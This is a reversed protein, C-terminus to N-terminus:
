GAIYFIIAPYCACPNVQEFVPISLTIFHPKKTASFAKDITTEATANVSM